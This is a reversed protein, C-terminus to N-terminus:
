FGLEKIKLKVDPSKLLAGGILVANYGAERLRFVTEADNVGSEAVTIISDPILKKMSFLVNLDVKMTDLDRSNVGIIKPGLPMVREFDELSHIEFVIDIDVEKALAYLESLKEKELFKAILLTADGMFAKTELIQYPEVIFDKRFIPLKVFRRVDSLHEIDGRFFLEETLISIAAAGSSQYKGAIGAYDYYDSFFFGQSISARKIEAILSFKASIADIFSRKLANGGAGALKLNDKIELLYKEREPAIERKYAIIREIQRNM